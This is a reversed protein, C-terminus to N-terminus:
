KLKEERIWGFGDGYVIKVFGMGNTVARSVKKVTEGAKLSGIRDAKLSCGDYVDADLALEAEEYANYVAYLIVDGPFVTDTSILGDSGDKATSWGLFQNGALTAAPLTALSAGQPLELQQPFCTGDGADFTLVVVGEKAAYVAYLECDAQYVTDATVYYPSKDEAWGLFTYGARMEPPLYPLKGDAGAELVVPTRGAAKFVVKIGGVQVPEEIMDIYYSNDGQVFYLSTLEGDSTDAYACIGGDWEDLKNEGLDAYLAYFDRALSRMVGPYAVGTAELGKQKQYATVGQGTKLGYVGDINNKLLGLGTLMLQMSKIALSEGPAPLLTGDPYYKATETEGCDLCTRAIVGNKGACKMVSVTWESFAHGNSEDGEPNRKIIYGCVSCVAYETGDKKAIWDGYTHVGTRPLVSYETKGCRACTHKRSGDEGCTALKVNSWSGWEHGLAAETIHREVKGCKKCTIEYWAGETCSPRMAVDTQDWEHEGDKCYGALCSPMLLAILMMWALIKKM